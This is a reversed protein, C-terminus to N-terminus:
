GTVRAVGRAAAASTSGSGSSTRTATASPSRGDSNSARGSVQRPRRPSSWFSSKGSWQFPIGAGVTIETQVSFFGPVSGLTM